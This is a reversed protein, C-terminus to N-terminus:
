LAHEDPRAPDRADEREDDGDDDGKGEEERVVDERPPEKLAPAAHRECPDENGANEAHADGQERDRNTCAQEPSASASAAGGGKSWLTRGTHSDRPSIKRRAREVSRTTEPRVLFSCTTAQAPSVLLDPRAPGARATPAVAAGKVWLAKRTRTYISLQLITQRWSSTSQERVTSFLRLQSRDVRHARM